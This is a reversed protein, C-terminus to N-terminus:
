AYWKGMKDFVDVGQGYGLTELLTLMLKDAEYHAEETDSNNAIDKMLLRFEDPTIPTGTM